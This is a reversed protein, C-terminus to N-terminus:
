LKCELPVSLRCILYILVIRIISYHFNGLPPFISSPFPSLFRWPLISPTALPLWVLYVTSYFVSTLPIAWVTSLSPFFMRTLSSLLLLSGSAPAQRDHEVFLLFAVTMSTGHVLPHPWLPWPSESLPPGQLCDITIKSKVRLTQHQLSM